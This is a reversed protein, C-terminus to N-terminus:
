GGTPGPGSPDDPGSPADPADPADPEAAEDMGGVPRTLMRAGRTLWAGALIAVGSMVLASRV